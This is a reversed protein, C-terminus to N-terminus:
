QRKRGCFCLVLSDFDIEFGALTLIRASGEKCGRTISNLDLQVQPIKGFAFVRDMNM